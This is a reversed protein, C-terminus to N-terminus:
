MITEEDIELSQIKLEVKHSEPSVDGERVINSCPLDVCIDYLKEM